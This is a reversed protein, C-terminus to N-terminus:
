GAVLPVQRRGAGRRRKTDGGRQGAPPGPAPRKPSPRSATAGKGKKGAVENSATAGGRQRRGRTLPPSTVEEVGASDEEFAVGSIFSPIENDDTWDVVSPRAYDGSPKTGESELPNESGASYDSRSEIMGEDEIESADSVDVDPAPPRLSGQLKEYLQPFM